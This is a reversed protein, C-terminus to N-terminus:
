AAFASIGQWIAADKEADDAAAYYVFAVKEVVAEKGCGCLLLGGVGAAALILGARRRGKM